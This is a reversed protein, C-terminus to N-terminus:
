GQQINHYHTSMHCQQQGHKFDGQSHYRSHLLTPLSCSSHAPNMIYSFNGGHHGMAISNSCALGCNYAPYNHNHCHFCSHKVSAGGYHSSNASPLNNPWSNEECDELESHAFSLEERTLNEGWLGSAPTSLSSRPDPTTSGHCLLQGHQWQLEEGFSLISSPRACNPSRRSRVPTSAGSLHANGLSYQEAQTAHRAQQLLTPTQTPFSPMMPNLSDEPLQLFPIRSHISLEEEPVTTCHHSQMHARAQAKARQVRERKNQQARQGSPNPDTYAKRQSAETMLSATNPSSPNM